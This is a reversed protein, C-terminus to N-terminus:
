LESSVCICNIISYKYTYYITNQKLLGSSEKGVTESKFVLVLKKLSSKPGLFVYM